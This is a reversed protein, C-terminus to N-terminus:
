QSLKQQISRPTTLTKFSIPKSQMKAKINNSIQHCTKAGINRTSLLNNNLKRSSSDHFTQTKGVKSNSKPTMKSTCQTKMNRPSKFFNEKKDEGFHVSKIERSPDKNQLLNKKKLQIKENVRKHLQELIQQHKLKPKPPDLEGCQDPHIIKLQRKQSTILQKINKMKDTTLLQQLKFEKIINNNDQQRETKLKEIKLLQQHINNNNNNNIKKSNKEQNHKSYSPTNQLEDLVNGVIIGSEITHSPPTSETQIPEDGVIGKPPKEPNNKNEEDIIKQIKYYELKRKQNYYENLINVISSSVAWRPLDNHFKYFETLVEMKNDLSHPQYIKKIYEVEEDLLALDKFVINPKTPQDLIIENIDKTFYYNQSEAYKNYLSNTIREPLSVKFQMKEFNNGYLTKRIPQCFLCNMKILFILLLLQFYFCYIKVKKKVIKLQCNQWTIEFDFHNIKRKNILSYRNRILFKIQQIIISCHMRVKIANLTQNANSNYVTNNTNNHFSNNVRRKNTIQSILAPLDLELLEQAMSQNQFNDISSYCVNSVRKAQQSKKYQNSKIQQQQDTKQKQLYEVSENVHKKSNARGKENLQTKTICTNRNRNEKEQLNWKILYRKEGESTNITDFTVTPQKRVSHTSEPIQQFNQPTDSDFLNPARVSLISSNQQDIKIFEDENSSSSNDSSIDFVINQQM